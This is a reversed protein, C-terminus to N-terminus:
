GLHGILCRELLDYAIKLQHDSLDQCYRRPVIALGPGFGNFSYWLEGSLLTLTAPTQLLKYLCLSASGPLCVCLPRTMFNLCLERWNKQPSLGTGVLVCVSGKLYGGIITPEM